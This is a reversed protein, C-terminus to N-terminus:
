KQLTFRIPLNFQVAVNKGDQKGPTWDPMNKVVRIAEEELGGGKKAGVTKVNKIVGTKDVQFSVFVIGQVDKKAAESPYRINTALYQNLANDGGKFSPPQEVFTFVGDKDPGKGKGPAPPPPPALTFRIPLNFQVNVNRGNQKGPKWKPMAKVVRIAEEELGGGKKAGATKVFLVRGDNMVIFSVFVTGGIKKAIAEKPYRINGSLYKNLAEEGGPFTPPQEVFTFIEEKTIDPEPITDTIASPPTTEPQTVPINLNESLRDIKEDTVFALSSFILLAVPVILARRLFSFRFRRSQTLMLIRRKIPQHSFNNILHFSPGAQLATHLITQAYAAVDGNEVSRKDAIFEHVLSLERKILHFFPNIWCVATVIEMFLKDTSHNEQLHVIEHRLMQRGEPTAASVGSNWFIFRFFSFPATIQQSLVLRYPRLPEIRGTRILQLIKFYGWGIRAAMLAIVIGYLVASLSFQPTEPAAAVTFVQERLTAVQATYVYFDPAGAGTFSLPIRLLPVALSLVTIALLYFRNWQHFRNNRLALHYYAYLIGSCVIVKVLYALFPTM